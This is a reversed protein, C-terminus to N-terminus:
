HTNKVKQLSIPFPINKVDVLSLYHVETLALPNLNNTDLCLPDEFNFDTAKFIAKILHLPIPEELSEDPQYMSLLQKIQIATLKPCIEQRV